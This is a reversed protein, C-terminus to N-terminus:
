WYFPSPRVRGLIEPQGGKSAESHHKQHWLCEDDCLLRGDAAVERAREVTGELAALEVVDLRLAALLLDLLLSGLLDDLLRGRLRLGRARRTVLRDEELGVVIHDGPRDPVEDLEGLGLLVVLLPLLPPHGVKRDDWGVAELEDRAVRLGLL